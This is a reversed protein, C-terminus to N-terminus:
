QHHDVVATVIPRTTMSSVLLMELKAKASEYFSISSIQFM